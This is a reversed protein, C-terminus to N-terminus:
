WKIDQYGMMYHMIGYICSYVNYYLCHTYVYMHTQKLMYIHVYM